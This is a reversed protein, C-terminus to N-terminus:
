NCWYLKMYEVVTKAEMVAGADLLHQSLVAMLARNDVFRSEVMVFVLFDVTMRNDNLIAFIRNVDFNMHPIELKLLEVYVMQYVTCLDNVNKVEGYVQLDLQGMKLSYGILRSFISTPYDNLVLANVSPDTIIRGVKLVNDSEGSELIREVDQYVKPRIQEVEQLISNTLLMQKETELTKDADEVSKFQYTAKLM